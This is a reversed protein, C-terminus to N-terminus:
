PGVKGKVSRDQTKYRGGSDLTYSVPYKPRNASYGSFTAETPAGGHMVVVRDGIALDLDRMEDGMAWTDLREARERKEPPKVLTPDFTGVVAEVIEYPGKYRKGTTKMYIVPNKPKSDHIDVVLCVHGGYLESLLIVDGAQCKKNVEM